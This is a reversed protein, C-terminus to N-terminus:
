HATARCRPSGSGAPRWGPGSRTWGPEASPWPPPYRPAPALPVPREEIPVNVYRDIARQTLATGDPIPPIGLEAMCRGDAAMAAQEEVSPGSACGALLTPIALAILVPVKM